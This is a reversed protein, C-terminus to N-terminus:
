RVMEIEISDDISARTKGGVLDHEHVTAYDDAMSRAETRQRVSVSVEILTCYLKM